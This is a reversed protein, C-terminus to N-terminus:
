VPGKDVCFREVVKGVQFGEILFPDMAIPIKLCKARNSVLSCVM